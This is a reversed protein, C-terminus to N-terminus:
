LTPTLALPDRGEKSACGPIPPPPPPQPPPQLEAVVGTAVVGQMAKPLAHFATNLLGLDWLGMSPTPVSPYGRGQLDGWGVPVM